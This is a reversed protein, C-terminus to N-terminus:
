QIKEAFTATCRASSQRVFLSLDASTRDETPVVNEDPRNSALSFFLRMRQADSLRALPASGTRSAARLAQMPRRSTPAYTRVAAPVLVTRGRGRRGAAAGRDPGGCHVNRGCPLVGPPGARPGPIMSAAHRPQGFRHPQLHDIAAPDDGPLKTSVRHM